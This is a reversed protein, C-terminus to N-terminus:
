LMALRCLIVPRPCAGDLVCPTNVGCANGSSNLCSAFSPYCLAGGGNAVALASADAPCRFTFGGLDGAIGTSCTATDVVCASCSSRWIGSTCAANSQFCLNGSGEPAAVTLPPVSGAAATTLVWTFGSGAAAGTACYSANQVSGAGQSTSYCVM